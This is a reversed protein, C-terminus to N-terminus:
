VVDHNVSTQALGSRAVNLNKKKMWKEVGRKERQENLRRVFDVHPAIDDLIPDVWEAEAISVLKIM